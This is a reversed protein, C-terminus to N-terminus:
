PLHVVATNIRIKFDHELYRRVNHNALANLGPSTSFTTLMLM